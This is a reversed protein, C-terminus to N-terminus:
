VIIKKLIDSTCLYSKKGNSAVWKALYEQESQGPTPILETKGLVGLVAWDMLSSYGSRSIIKDAALVKAALEADPLHPVFWINDLTEVSFDQNPFGRVILVSKSSGRYRQLISQELLTRQPELGSLVAVVSFKRDSLVSTVATDPLNKFRSLLGIFEANRPQPYQHALDGSLGGDSEIDPILCYDYHAIIRGHLWHALPELWHWPYPLKVMLQHTMYVCKCGSSWLGFRNDSIIRDFHEEALLYALFRHDAVSARFLAPLQRLLTFTQKKGSSYHLSLPPFHIARLHPFHQQLLCLSVGDGGLVVEHGEAQLRHVLPVCRAAHGLGWNLPVLLIKM